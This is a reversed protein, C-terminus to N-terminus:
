AAAEEMLMQDIQDKVDAPVDRWFADYAARDVWVADDDRHREPLEVVEAGQRERWRVLGEPPKAPRSAVENIIEEADVRDGVLWLDAAKDLHRNAAPEHALLGDRMEIHLDYEVSSGGEPDGHYEVGGPGLSEGRPPLTM